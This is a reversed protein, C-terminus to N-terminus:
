GVQTRLLAADVARMASLVDAHGPAFESARLVMLQATSLDDGVRCLCLAAAALLKPDDPCATLARQWLSAASAWNGAREEQRAMMAALSARTSALTGHAQALQPRRGGERETLTSLCLQLAAAIREVEGVLAAIEDNPRAPLEDHARTVSSLSPSTISSVRSPQPASRSQPVISAIPQPSPSSAHRPPPASPRVPEPLPASSVARTRSSSAAGSWVEQARESRSLGEVAFTRTTESTERPVPTPRTTVTRDYALRRMPDALVNGAHTVAGLVADLKQRHADDLDSRATSLSEVLQGRLQLITATSAGPQAGLVEYHTASRLRPWLHDIMASVRAVHPKDTKM